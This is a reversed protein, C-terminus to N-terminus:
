HKKKDGTIYLDENQVFDVIQKKVEIAMGKASLTDEYQIMMKCCTIIYDSCIDCIIDCYRVNKDHELIHEKLFSAIMNKSRLYFSPNGHSSYAGTFFDRHRLVCRFMEVFNPSPYDLRVDFINQYNYDNNISTMEERIEDEIEELVASVGSFHKYFTSRSLYAQKCLMEVTIRDASTTKYLSVFAEKIANRANNIAMILRQFTLLKATKIISEVHMVFVYRIIFFSLIHM